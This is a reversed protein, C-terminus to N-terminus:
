KYPSGEPLQHKLNSITADRESVRRELIRIAELMNGLMDSIKGLEVKKNFADEVYDNFSLKVEKNQLEYSM